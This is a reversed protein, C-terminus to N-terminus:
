YSSSTVVDCVWTLILNSFSTIKLVRPLCQGSLVGSPLSPLASNWAHRNCLSLCVGQAATVCRGQSPPLRAETMVVAPNLRSHCTPECVQQGGWHLLRLWGGQRRPLVRTKNWLRDPFTGKKWVRLKSLFRFRIIYALYKGIFSLCSVNQNQKGVNWRDVTPQTHPYSHAPSKFQQSPLLIPGSTHNRRTMVSCKYQDPFGHEAASQCVVM